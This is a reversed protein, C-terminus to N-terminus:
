SSGGIPFKPGAQRLAFIGRRAAHRPSAVTGFWGGLLAGEAYCHIGVGFIVLQGRTRDIRFEHSSAFTESDRDASGLMTM